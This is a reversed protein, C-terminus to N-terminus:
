IDYKVEEDLWVNTYRGLYMVLYKAVVSFHNIEYVYNTTENIM